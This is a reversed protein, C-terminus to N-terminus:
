RRRLLLLVLTVALFGAVAPLREPSFWASSCSTYDSGQCCDAGPIAWLMFASAAASLGLVALPDHKWAQKFKGFLYVAPATLRTFSSALRRPAFEDTVAWAFFLVIFVAVEM